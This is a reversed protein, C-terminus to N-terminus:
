FEHKSAGLYIIYLGKTQNVFFMKQWKRILYIIEREGWGAFVM